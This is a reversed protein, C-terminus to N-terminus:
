KKAKTGSEEKGPGTKEKGRDNIKEHKKNKEEQSKLKEVEDSKEQLKKKLDELGKELLSNKETLDKITKEKEGTEGKQKELLKGLEKIKIELSLIKEESLNIAKKLEEIKKSLDFEKQASEKSLKEIDGAYKKERARLQENLENVKKTFTEEIKKNLGTLEKIKESSKKELIANKERINEYKGTWLNLDNKYKGKLSTIDSDLSRIKADKQKLDKNFIINEEELINNRREILLLRKRIVHNESRLKEIEKGNKKGNLTACSIIGTLTGAIIVKLINMHLDKSKQFLITLMLQINVYISGRRIQM